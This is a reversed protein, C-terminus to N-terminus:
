RAVKDDPGTLRRGDIRGDLDVSTVEAMGDYAAAVMTSEMREGPALERHTGAQHGASVSVPVGTCPELVLTNLGRWGGYTAFLWCSSFVDTDFALAVGTGDARTVACWGATLETLYQFEAVGSESELTARMDLVDGSDTRLHPWDYTVGTRGGRPTGFDEIYSKRAPVDVREHGELAVPLHQKWLFPLSRNATNEIVHRIVLHRARPALELMKTFRCGSVAGTATLVVRAPAGDDAPQPEYRWPATWLEGHDPYPEGAIMEPEDNPFLEDWGGVFNDDYSTGLPLSHPRLRDNHWILDRGTALDTIQWVKGGIEPLVVVRLVGNDLILTELGRYSWDTLVRTTM